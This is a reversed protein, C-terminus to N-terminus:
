SLLKSVLRLLKPEESTPRGEDGARDYWLGEARTALGGLWRLPEPPYRRGPANVFPFRSRETREGLLLDVLIATCFHSQAVGHGCYGHSYGVRGGGILGVQPFLSPTMAIPGGHGFAIRVDSLSPFVRSLAERQASFVGAMRDMHPRVRAGFPQRGDVGGFMLRDDPTRRYNILFFRRDNVPERGEWGLEDWQASSLPETIVDYVYFPLVSRRFPPAGASWANRALVVKEAFVPGDRTTVTIRKTGVEVGLVQVREFLNLGRTVLDDALARVLKTPNETASVTDEYGSSLRPSDVRARVEDGTLEQYIDSGLDKAAELDRRIRRDGAANSSVYLLSVEHLDCDLGREKVTEIVDRVSQVATQHIAAGTDTGLKVLSGPSHGMWNSLIGANRGSAGSGIDDAELVAVSIPASRELLHKATWLGTFGGGVVVVDYTSGAEL